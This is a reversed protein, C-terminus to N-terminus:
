RTLLFEYERQAIEDKPYLELYNKMYERATAFELLYEYTMAQNFLLERNWEEDELKLGFSFATAAGEYDGTKWRCLGLQNYVAANNGKNSLYTNYLSAAYNYDEGAEYTKGLMLISDPDSLDKAKELYARANQYDGLYYCIRGKDYDKMSKSTELVNKLYAAAEDDFGADQMSFFIDLHMDYSQPNSVTVKSFDSYAEEINGLYLNSLARAYFTESDHPRLALIADYVAVADEYRGLKRYCLGLYYNIDYDVASITGNSELLASKFCEAANEFDELHVYSVGMGRYALKKCNEDEVSLKFNLIAAEYDGALMNATGADFSANVPVKCGALLLTLSICIFSLAYGKLKM